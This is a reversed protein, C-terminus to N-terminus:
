ANLASFYDTLTQRVEGEEPGDILFELHASEIYGLSLIGLLSKANVTRNGDHIMVATEYKHLSTALSIAREQTFNFPARLPLQLTTM